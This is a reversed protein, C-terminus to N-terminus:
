VSTCDNMKKIRLRERRASWRRLKSARWRRWCRACRVLELEGERFGFVGEFEGERILIGEGIAVESDGSDGRFYFCISRLAICCSLIRYPDLTPSHILQLQSSYKTSTAIPQKTASPQAQIQVQSVRVGRRM